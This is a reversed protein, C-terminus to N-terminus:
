GQDATPARGRQRRGDTRDGTWGTPLTYRWGEQWSFPSLVLDALDRDLLLHDLAWRNASHAILLLRSGNWDAALDRLLDRTQDVVQHYSQGGPWPTDLHQLREAHLRATPMGNLRGYNCERLRRDHQIPIGTDGFAIDATEVARTLDSVLVAALDDDRRRRGLEAALRRGQDSLRGPLWGTAIGAENDTSISHTEYIIEVSM